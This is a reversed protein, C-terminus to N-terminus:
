QLIVKGALWRQDQCRLMVQYFGRPLDAVNFELFGRGQIHDPYYRRGASDVLFFENVEDSSWEIQVQDTAPNPYVQGLSEVVKTTNTVSPFVLPWLFIYGPNCSVGSGHTISFSDTQIYWVEVTGDSPYPGDPIVTNGTVTVNDKNFFIPNGSFQLEDNYCSGTTEWSNLQNVRFQFDVPQSLEFIYEHQVQNPLQNDIGVQLVPTGNQTTTIDYCMPSMTITLITGQGDVNEFVGGGSNTTYGDAGWEFQQAHLSSSSFALVLTFFPLHKIM